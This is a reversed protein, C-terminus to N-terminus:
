AYTLAIATSMCHQEQASSRRLIQRRDCGHKHIHLLRIPRVRSSCCSDVGVRCRTDSIKSFILLLLLRRLLLVRVLLLCARHMM